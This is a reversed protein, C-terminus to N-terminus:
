KCRHPQENSRVAHYTFLFFWDKLSILPLIPWASRSHQTVQFGGRMRDNREDSYEDTKKTKDRWAAKRWARQKGQNRGGQSTYDFVVPLALFFLPPFLVVATFALCLSTSDWHTPFTSYFPPNLFATANKVTLYSAVPSLRWELRSPLSSCSTSCFCALM